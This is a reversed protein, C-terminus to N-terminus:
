RCYTKGGITPCRISNEGIKIYVIDNPNCEGSSTGIFAAQEGELTFGSIPLPEIENVPIKCDTAGPPADPADPNCVQGLECGYVTVDCTRLDNWEFCFEDGDFKGGSSQPQIAFRVNQASAQPRLIVILDDFDGDPPDSFDDFGVVIDDKLAFTPYPLYALQNSDENLQVVKFKDCNSDTSDKCYPNLLIQSGITEDRFILDTTDFNLLTYLGWNAQDCTDAILIEDAKILNRHGAEKAVAVVYYLKEFDFKDLITYKDTLNAEVFGFFDTLGSPITGNTDCDYARATPTGAVMVGVAFALTFLLSIWRKRPM